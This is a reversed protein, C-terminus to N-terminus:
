VEVAPEETIQEKKLTEYFAAHAMVMYFRLEGICGDDM